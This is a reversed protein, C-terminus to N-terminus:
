DTIICGSKLDSAVKLFVVASECTNVTLKSARLRFALSHRVGEDDDIVHAIVDDSSMVLSRRPSLVYHSASSQVEERTPPSMLEAATLSSSPVHFQYGWAWGM